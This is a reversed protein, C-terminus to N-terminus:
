LGGGFRRSSSCPYVNSPAVDSGALDEAEDGGEPRSVQFEFSDGDHRACRPRVSGVGKTMRLSAFSGSDEADGRPRVGIWDSKDGQAFRLAQQGRCGLRRKGRGEFAKGGRHYVDTM